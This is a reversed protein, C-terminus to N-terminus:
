ETKRHFPHSMLRLARFAVFYGGVNADPMVFMFIMLLQPDGDGWQKIANLYHDDYLKQQACHPMPVEKPFLVFSMLLRAM